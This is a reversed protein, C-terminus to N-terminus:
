STGSVAPAASMTAAHPCVHMTAGGVDTVHEALAQHVREVIIHLDARVNHSLWRV